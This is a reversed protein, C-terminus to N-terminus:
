ASALEADTSREYRKWGRHNHIQRHGLAQMSSPSLGHELSFARLSYIRDYVRGEPSVFPGWVKAQRKRNAEAIKAAVEPPRPKGLLKQRQKEISEPKNKRGLQLQSIRQRTETTHRRGTASKSLQENWTIERGKLRKSMNTKYDDSPVWGSPGEGGDTLNTLNERGYYAILEREFTFAADECEFFAVKTKVVQGGQSWIQRITNCKHSRHGARAQQEHERIRKGHGKGVYFVTGDPRGLTYVYFM